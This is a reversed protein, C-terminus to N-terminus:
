NRSPFIGQLAICYHMALGPQLNNVPQGGGAPSIAESAMQADAAGATYNIIGDRNQAPIANVPTNSTGPESSVRVSHAHIPMQNVTLTTTETGFTEGLSYNSLGPGQGASVPVRGRLDPLAFTTQGDGGYITGLLAFLAENQSIALLQGNCFAWGRPAFNYPLLAIEGLFPEAGRRLASNSNANLKTAFLGGLAFMGIISKFFNKRSKM